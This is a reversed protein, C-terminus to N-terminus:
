LHFLRARATNERIIISFSFLSFLHKKKTFRFFFISLLLTISLGRIITTIQRQLLINLAHPLRLTRDWQFFGQRGQGRRHKSYSSPWAKKLPRGGGKKRETKVM